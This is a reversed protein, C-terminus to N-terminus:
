SRPAQERSVAGEEEATTGCWECSEGFSGDYAGQSVIKRDEKARADREVCDNCLTVTPYQEAASDSQMNGFITCTKM